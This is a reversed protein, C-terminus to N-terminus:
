QRSRTAPLQLEGNSAPPAFVYSLPRTPGASVHSPIGMFVRLHLSLSLFRYRSYNWGGPPDGGAGWARARFGWARADSPEHPM